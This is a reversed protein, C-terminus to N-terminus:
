CKAPTVYVNYVIHRALYVYTLTTPEGYNDYYEFINNCYSVYLGAQAVALTISTYNM